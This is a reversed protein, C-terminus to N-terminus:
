KRGFKELSAAIAMYPLRQVFLTIFVTVNFAWCSLVLLTAEIGAVPQLFTLLVATFSMLVCSRISLHFPRSQKLYDIEVLESRLLLDLTTDTFGHDLLYDRFELQYGPITAKAALLSFLVLCTVVVVKLDFTSFQTYTIVMLMPFVVFLITSASLRPILVEKSFLTALRGAPANTVLTSRLGRWDKTILRTTGDGGSLTVTTSRPTDQTDFGFRVVFDGVATYIKTARIASFESNLWDGFAKVQEHSRPMASPDILVTTSGDASYVLSRCRYIYFRHLVGLVWCGFLLWSAYGLLFDNQTM